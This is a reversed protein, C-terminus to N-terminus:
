LSAYLNIKNGGYFGANEEVSERLLTPFMSLTKILNFFISWLRRHRLPVPWLANHDKRLVLLRQVYKFCLERSTITEATHRRKNERRAYVRKGMRIRYKLGTERALLVCVGSPIALRVDFVRRPFM